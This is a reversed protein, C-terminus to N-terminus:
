QRESLREIAHVGLSRFSTSVIGDPRARMTRWYEERVDDDGNLSTKKSENAAAASATSEGTAWPDKQAAPKESKCAGACVLLCVLMSKMGVLNERTM